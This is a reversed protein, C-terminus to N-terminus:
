RLSFPKCSVVRPTSIAAGCGTSVPYMSGIASFEGRIRKFPSSLGDLWDLIGSFEPANLAEAKQM